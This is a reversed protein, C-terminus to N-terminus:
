EAFLEEVIPAVAEETRVHHLRLLPHLDVHVALRQLARDSLASRCWPCLPYWPCLPEARDRKRTTINRREASCEKNPPPAKKFFDGSGVHLLRVWTGSINKVRWRPRM